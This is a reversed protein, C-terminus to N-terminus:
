QGEKLWLDGAYIESMVGNKEIILQGDSGIDLPRVLIDVDGDEYIMTERVLLRSKLAERIPAFGHAEFERLALLMQAEFVEHFAEFSVEQEEALSFTPLARAELYDSTPRLSLNVGTGIILVHGEAELLIGAVKKRGLLVDNPWKVAIDAFGLAEFSRVLALATVLSYKPADARNHPMPWVLSGSYNGKASQWKSGSRGRGATQEHALIWFPAQSGQALERRAQNQTSDITDYVSAMLQSNVSLVKRRPRHRKM